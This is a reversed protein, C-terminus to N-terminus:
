EFHREGKQALRDIAKAHGEEARRPGDEQILTNVTHVSQYVHSALRELGPGQRLAAESRSGCNFCM